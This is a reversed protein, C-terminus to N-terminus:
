TSTENEENRPNKWQHVVSGMKVGYNIDELNFMFKWAMKLLVTGLKGKFNSFERASAASASNGRAQGKCISKFVLIM